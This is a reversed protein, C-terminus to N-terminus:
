SLHSVLIGISLGFCIRGALSEYCQLDRKSNEDWNGVRFRQLGYAENM